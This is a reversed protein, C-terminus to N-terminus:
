LCAHGDTHLAAAILCLKPDCQAPPLKHCLQCSTLVLFAHALAASNICSALLSRSQLLMAVCIVDCRLLRCLVAQFQKATVRHAMLATTRQQLHVTAQIRQLDSPLQSAWVQFWLVIHWSEARRRRVVSPVLMQQM